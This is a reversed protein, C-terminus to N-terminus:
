VNGRLGDMQVCCFSEFLCKSRTFYLCMLLCCLTGCQKISIQKPVLPFEYKLFLISFSEQVWPLWIFLRKVEPLPTLNTFHCTICCSLDRSAKCSMRPTGTLIFIQISTHDARPWLCCPVVWLPWLQHSPPTQPHQLFDVQRILSKRDHHGIATAFPFPFPNWDWQHLLSFSQYIHSFKSFHRFQLFVNFRLSRLPYPM